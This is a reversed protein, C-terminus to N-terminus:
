TNRHNGGRGWRGADAFFDGDGATGDGAHTALMRQWIEREVKHVATGEVAAQRVFVKLDDVMEKLQDLNGCAATEAMIM